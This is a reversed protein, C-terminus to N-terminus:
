GEQDHLQEDIQCNVQHLSWWGENCSDNQGRTKNCNGLSLNLM